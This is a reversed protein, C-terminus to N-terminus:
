WDKEQHVKQGNRLDQQQVKEKTQKENQQLADLQRKNDQQKQRDAASQQQQKNQDGKNQQNQNQNQQNQQNQQDKNQQNQGGKQDQQNKNEKGQGQQQQQQKGQGNQNQQQQKQQQQQQQAFLKKKAYELNYKTDMDSPNLKLANKYADISEKYKEQKMLSNGLNHYAKSRIKKDFSNEGAVYQFSEAADEYKEQRYLAAGLNYNAKDYNKTSEMAKRYNVEAKQYNESAKKVRENANYTNVEGGKKQLEMAENRYQEATKFDTNGKRIASLEAKTQAQMTNISLLLFIVLLSSKMIYRNQKEKFWDIWKPKVAFLLAEIVLFILAFSLPIQYKSDYKSFTIEALDVKTMLNIKDLIADFGMNANDAHVYVGGGASAIDRLATENLRTIVTNGENDEKYKVMGNGGKVPIPEGRTSGIGITHITIGLEKVKKAIDSAEAFHDEGDSVVIMVKSTMKKLEENNRLDGEEPLMSVAALDLASAIDTGQENIMRTSINNIFMKAAAYDSTIPLQVFSKGAFVVLGIRDGELKDIFRSMAMKSAELRSPQIDEALMSNSVDFCIMIDVGKRTGKELSSGVQPNAIALIMCALAAILLSFKIHQMPLSREPMLKDLLNLDGYGALKKKARIQLFIYIAILIPIIILGYLYNENEFRFM